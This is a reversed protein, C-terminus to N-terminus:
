TLIENEMLQLRKMCCYSFHAVSFAHAWNHYPTKRYGKQVMLIFRALNDERISFRTCFKLDTFMFLAMKLQANEPLDRPCYTFEAFQEALGDDVSTDMLNKVDYEPVQFM